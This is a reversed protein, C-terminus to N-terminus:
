LQKERCEPTQEIEKPAKFGRNAKPKVDRIGAFLERSFPTSM